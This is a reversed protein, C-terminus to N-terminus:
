GALSDDLSSATLVHEAWADLRDASAQRVRAEIEESVPGFRARLLKLLHEAKGQELGREIGQELGEDYGQQHGSRLEYEHFWLDIARKVALRHSEHECSLRPAGAPGSPDM